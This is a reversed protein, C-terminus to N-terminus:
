PSVGPPPHANLTSAPCSSAGVIRFATTLRVFRGVVAGGATQGGNGWDGGAHIAVNAAGSQRAEFLTTQCQTGAPYTVFSGAAHISRHENPMNWTPASGIACDAGFPGSPPVMMNCWSLGSNFQVWASGTWAYGKFNRVSVTIGAVQSGCNWQM